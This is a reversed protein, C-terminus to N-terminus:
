GGPPLFRAPVAVQRTEDWPREWGGIALVADLVYATFGWVFLDGLDFGPGSVGRPHRWTVRTAPDALRSLPVSLVAAVEAPDQPRLPAAGDWAGVVIRVDFRSVRIRSAPLEGLVSVSGPVLGVEEAAERLAAAVASEGPEIGGGPFSVQGAHQRLDASRLTLLVTPDARRSLLVLVAAPRQAEAPGPHLQSCRKEPGIAALRAAM